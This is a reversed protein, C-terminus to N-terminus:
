WTTTFFYMPPKGTLEVQKMGKAYGIIFPLDGMHEAWKEREADAAADTATEAPAADDPTETEDAYGLACCSLLALALFTNRALM